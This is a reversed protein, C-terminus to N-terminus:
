GTRPRAVLLVFAGGFLGATLLMATRYGGTADVTLGLVMPGTASVVSVILSQIGMLTGIRREGYVDAAYLGQLPSIAGFVFGTVVMFLLIWVLEGGIALPVIGAAMLIYATGTAVPVGLRRTVPEMFARGPLSLFGRASAVATATGLSVGLSTMAPVHHVQIAAFGMAALSFMAVMQLVDRSRFAELVGGYNGRGGHGVVSPPAHGGSVLLAAPLVHLVLLGVMVRIAIRWELLEVLLGALPFYIVAAFGGVFTLIAFARIRDRPFLRTTLAMTVSYFLGASIIGGGLGWAGVFLPMSPASAALLLFVSGAALSGLLVPRAGVRDLMWGSGAGTVGGILSSVTFSTSLAGISWGTSEHIPEILVGFAYVAIGYSGVTLVGLLVVKWWTAWFTSARGRL